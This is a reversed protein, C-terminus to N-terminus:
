SGSSLTFPPYHDTLLGIYAQVRLSYRSVGVLYDRAWSPYQGTFLVAFFGAIVVFLAAVDLVILVVYHPAALIWKILPQWRSLHEPYTLTVVAHPDAGDDAATPQFSFPPYGEHLCLAYSTARWQYRFTMAIADFLPRPIRKTFLVTFLTVVTLLGRLYRGLVYAIALHPVALLWQVLPRWRAIQRDADLHLQVPYPTAISM